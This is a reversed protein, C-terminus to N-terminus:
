FLSYGIALSGYGDLKVGSSNFMNFGLGLGLHLNRFIRYEYLGYVNTGIGSNMSFIPGFTFYVTSKTNTKFTSEIGDKYEDFEDHLGLLKYQLDLNDQTLSSIKQRLVETETQDKNVYLYYSDNLKNYMGVIGDVLTKYGEITDPYDRSYEKDNIKIVIKNSTATTTSTTSTSATETETEAPAPVTKNQAFANFCTMAIILVLIAFKRM